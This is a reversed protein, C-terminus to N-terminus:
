ICRFQHSFLLCPPPFKCVINIYEFRERFEYSAHLNRMELVVNRTTDTPSYLIDIRNNNGLILLSPIPLLAECEPLGTQHSLLDKLNAEKTTVPDELLWEGPLLDQMKTDWNFASIAPPLATKNEGREFDQM